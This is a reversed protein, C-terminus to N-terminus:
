HIEPVNMVHSLDVCDHEIHGSPEEQAALEDVEAVVQLVVSYEKIPDEDHVDHGFCPYHTISRM